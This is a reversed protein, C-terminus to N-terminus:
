LARGPREIGRAAFVDEMVPWAELAAPFGAYVAVMRLTQVVQEPTAGHNLAGNIHSRLPGSRGGLASLMAVVQLSRTKRDLAPHSWVEGLAFDVVDGALEPSSKQMRALALSPDAAGGLTRMVDLGAERRGTVPAVAGRLMRLTDEDGFATAVAVEAPDPALGYASLVAERLAADLSLGELEALAHWGAGHGEPHAPEGEWEIPAYLNLVYPAEDGPLHVTKLFAEAVDDVAIGLVRLLSDMAADVDDQEESFTGGPLEWSGSPARFLLLRGDRNLLARLEIRKTM